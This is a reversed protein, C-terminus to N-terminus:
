LVLGAGVPMCEGGGAECGARATPLVRNLNGAESSTSIRHGLGNSCGDAHGMACAREMYEVGRIVNRAVNGDGRSVLVGATNCGDPVGMNCARLFFEVARQKNEPVGVGQAYEAGTYFCAEADNARCGPESQSQQAQAASGAALMVGLVVLARLM